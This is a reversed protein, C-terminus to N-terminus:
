QSVILVLRQIVISEFLEDVSKAKLIEASSLADLGKPRKKYLFKNAAAPTAINYNSSVGFKQENFKEAEPDMDINFERRFEADMLTDQSSIHSVNLGLPINCSESTIPPILCFNRDIRM